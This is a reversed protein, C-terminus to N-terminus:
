VVVSCHFKSNILELTLDECMQCETALVTKPDKKWIACCGRTPLPRKMISTERSCEPVGYENLSRRVPSWGGESAERSLVCCECSLFMSAAQPVRIRLELLSRVCVWAVPNPGSTALLHFILFTCLMKPPFDSLFVVSSFRLM